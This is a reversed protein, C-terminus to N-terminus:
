CTYHKTLSSLPVLAAQGFLNRRASLRLAPEQPEVPDILIRLKEPQKAGHTRGRDHYEITM